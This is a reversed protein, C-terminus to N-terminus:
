CYNSVPTAVDPVENRAMGPVFGFGSRPLNQQSVVKDSGVHPLHKAKMIPSHQGGPSQIARNVYSELFKEMDEEETKISSMPDSINTFPKKLSAGVHKQKMKQEELVRLLKVKLKEFFLAPDKTALNPIDNM